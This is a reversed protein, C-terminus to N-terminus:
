KRAADLAALITGISCENAHVARHKIIKLGQGWTVPDADCKCDPCCRGGGETDPLTVSWEMKRLAAEMDPAVRILERVPDSVGAGTVVWHKGDLSESGIIIGGNSDRLEWGAGSPSYRWAWPAPHEPKGAASM